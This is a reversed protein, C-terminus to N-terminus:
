SITRENIYKKLLGYEEAIFYIHQWDYTPTMKDNKRVYRVMHNVIIDPHNRKMWKRYDKLSYNVGNIRMLDSVYDYIM